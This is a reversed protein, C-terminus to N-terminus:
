DTLDFRYAVNLFVVQDIPFSVGTFGDLHDTPFSRVGIRVADQVNIGVTLNPRVRTGRREYDGAVDGGEPFGEYQPNLMLTPGAGLFLRLLGPSFLPVDLSGVANLSVLNNSFGRAPKRGFARRGALRDYSLELGLTYGNAYRRDAGVLLSLNSTGLFKLVNNEPNTDLDGMYFALGGGLTVGDILGPEEESPEGQACATSVLLMLTALLCTARRLTSAAPM